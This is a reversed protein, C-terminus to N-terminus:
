KSRHIQSRVISVFKAEDEPSAFASRPVFYGNGPNVWIVVTLQQITVSQVARWDIEASDLEGSSRFGSESVSFRRPGLILGSSNARIAMRRNAIIAFSYNLFWMFWAGIVFTSFSSFPHDPFFQEYLMSTFFGALVVLGGVVIGWVIQGLLSNVNAASRMSAFVFDQWHKPEVTYSLKQDM